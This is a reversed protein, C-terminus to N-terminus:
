LAKVRRKMLCGRILLDKFEEENWGDIVRINGAHVSGEFDCMVYGTPDPRWLSKKTQQEGYKMGAGFGAATMTLVFLFTLIKILASM